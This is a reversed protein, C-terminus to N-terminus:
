EEEAEEDERDGRLWEEHLERVRAIDRPAITWETANMAAKFHNPLANSLVFWEGLRWKLFGRTKSVVLDGGGTQCAWLHWGGADDAHLEVFGLHDDDFDIEYKYSKSRDPLQPFYPAESDVTFEWQGRPVSFHKPKREEAMLGLVKTLTLDSLSDTKGEIEDWGRAAEMYRRATRENFPCNALIWPILEGHAKEAKIRNLRSGIRIARELADHASAMAAEHDIRIAEAEDRHSSLAGKGQGGSSLQKDKM